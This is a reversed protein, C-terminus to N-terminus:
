VFDQPRQHQQARIWSYRDVVRSSGAAATRSKAPGRLSIFADDGLAPVRATRISSTPAERVLNDTLAYFLRVARSRGGSVDIQREVGSWNGEDLAALFDKAVADEAKHGVAKLFAFVVASGGGGGGDAKGPQQTPTATSNASTALRAALTGDDSPQFTKGSPDVMVTPRNASYAYTSVVPTDVDAIAPDLALFRGTATDYQRARLYYFGTPDLLEGAFTMPNQPAAPDDQTETRSTGFPEYGYTWQTAGSSSTLNAVSGLSDVHYYSTAGGSTLSIRGHGYLYRRLLVGSGDRELALQPLPHSADWLYKTIQSGASSQARNGEGDYSYTTTTGDSTTSALRNALDYAFTRAGASTENGSQDYSYGTSGAQTLEDAANYTYTTTGSPRTETLRNGVADHAWRVYDSAGACSAM